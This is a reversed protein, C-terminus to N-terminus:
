KKLLCKNERILRSLLVILELTHEHSQVVSAKIRAILKELEPLYAKTTFGAFTAFTDLLENIRDPPFITVLRQLTQQYIKLGKLEAKTLVKKSRLLRQIQDCALKSILQKQNSTNYIKDMDIAYFRNTEEIKM